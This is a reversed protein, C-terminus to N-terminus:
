AKKRCPACTEDCLKKSGKEKKISPKLPINIKYIHISQSHLYTGRLVPLNKAHTIKSLTQKCKEIRHKPQFLPLPSTHSKVDNM